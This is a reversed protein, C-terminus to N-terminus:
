VDGFCVTLVRIMHSIEFAHRVEVRIGESQITRQQGSIENVAECVLEGQHDYTVNDISLTKEYGRILVEESPLHQLWKYKPPPNGEAECTLSTRNYMKAAIVKTPGVSVISPSDPSVFVCKQFM